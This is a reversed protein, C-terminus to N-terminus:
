QARLRTTHTVVTTSEPDYEHVRRGAPRPEAARERPFREKTPLFTVNRNKEDLEYHSEDLLPIWMM